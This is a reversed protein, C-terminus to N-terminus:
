GDHTEGKLMERLEEGVHLLEPVPAGFTHRYIPNAELLTGEIERGIVTRIKVRDGIVADHLLFGKVRMEFPVKATEEPVNPSREGVKLVVKHIQVWTGALVTDM